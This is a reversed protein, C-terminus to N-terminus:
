ELMDEQISHIRDVPNPDVGYIMALYYAFYDGYHLATWMQEMRGMGRANIIDTPIGELMM